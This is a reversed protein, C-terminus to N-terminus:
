VLLEVIPQVFSRLADEDELLSRSMILRDPEIYWAREESLPLEIINLTFSRANRGLEMEREQVLQALIRPEGTVEREAELRTYEMRRERGWSLAAGFHAQCFRQLAPAGTFVMFGPPDLATIAGRQGAALSYWWRSWQDRLADVGGARAMAQRPDVPRIKPEAPSVAPNGAGHLGAADRLYLALLMTGSTDLTIRWGPGGTHHM